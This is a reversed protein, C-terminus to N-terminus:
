SAARGDFWLAMMIEDVDTGGVAFQGRRIAEDQFGMQTFLRHADPNTALVSLTMKRVGVEQAWALCARLLAQGIGKRRHTPAVVIALSGTHRSKESTGRSAYLHGAMRGEDEAVLFLHVSPDATHVFVAEQAPSLPFTDIGLTADEAAARNVLDVVSAADDPMARRITM